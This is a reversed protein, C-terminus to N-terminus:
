MKDVPLGSATWGMMDGELHSVNMFQQQELEQMALLARRGSRCYIIIPKDKMDNHSEIFVNIQDHPMNIAGPIHSEAYEEPTRVDILLWEDAKVKELLFPTAEVTGFGEAEADNANYLSTGVGAIVILVLGALIKRM